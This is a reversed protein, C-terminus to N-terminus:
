EYTNSNEVNRNSIFKAYFIKYYSPKTRISFLEKKKRNNLLKIDGHKRMNEINGGFVTNNM